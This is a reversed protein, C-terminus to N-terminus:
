RTTHAILDSTLRSPQELPGLHSLEPYVIHRAGPIASATGAALAALISSDPDGSGVTVPQVIDIVDAVSIGGTAEYVMAETEARCKLRVTGDPLDELGYNVYCDLVDDHLASLSPRSKFRTRAESRSAFFETRKRAAVAMPNQEVPARIRTLPVIPEFLFVTAFRDPETAAAALAVAGGLSHGLLHIRGRIRHAADLVDATIDPWELSAGAWLPSDGHGRLDVAFVHHQTALTRAFPEYMSGCFGTAHCVLLPEGEGGLDHVAILNTSGV